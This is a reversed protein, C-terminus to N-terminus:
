RAALWRVANLVFKLEAGQPERSESSSSGKSLTAQGPLMGNLIVKGEGFDGVVVAPHDERDAMVVEGDPGPEMAIHDYSYGYDITDGVEFGETVPHVQTVLATGLKPNAVGTGIEPFMANHIRYGVADHTLMVGGGKQVFARVDTAAHNFFRSVACQPLLLVDCAALAASDLRPLMFARLNQERFTEALYESTDQYGGHYVGIAPGEGAPVKIATEPNEVPPPAQVGLGRVYVGIAGTFEETMVRTNEIRSHKIEPAVVQHWAKLGTVTQDTAADLEGLWHAAAQKEQETLEEKGEVVQGIEYVAQLVKLYGEIVRTELAMAPEGVEKALEMAAVCTQLNRSIHEEDPLYAYPGEGLQPWRGESIGQLIEGHRQHLLYYLDQPGYVDWGVPGLMVAWDAAKEPDSVGQQTFYALAFEREDRGHANWSWEASATVNFDYFRLAPVTYGALSQVGKDVFEQMRFKIFQPGSWPAVTNKDPTLQPYVGLWGGGKVYEALLPYIMPNRDSLYTRDTHYYTVGIEPPLAALVKDNSDYSAETLLVRLRLDPRVKKAREYGQAIAKAQLVFPGQALCQECMCHHDEGLWVSVDRSELPLQQALSVIWDGLVRVTAEKSFCAVPRNQAKMYEDPVGRTEPLMEFVNTRNWQDAHRVIPVVKLACRAGQELLSTDLDVVGEGDSTVTASYRGRATSLPPHMECLNLKRDAMWQIPGALWGGGWQGREPMDPWDVIRALPIEVTADQGTGSFKPRLLHQLTKAAYYVGRPDTATLALANQEVPAIVYAQEANPVQRIRELGPVALGALRGQEDAVGVIINWGRSRVVRALPPKVGAKEEFLAVVEQAAIRELQSANKRGLVVAVEDAGVVAKSDIAVEKPLPIVHLLWADTEAQSVPVVAGSAATVAALLLTTIGISRLMNM